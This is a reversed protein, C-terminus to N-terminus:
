TSLAGGSNALLLVNTADIIMFTVGEGIALTCTDNTGDFTGGASLLVVGGNTAGSDAVFRYVRDRLELDTVPVTVTRATTDNFVIIEADAPIGVGLTAAAAGVHYVKPVPSDVYRGKRDVQLSKHPFATPKFARSPTAETM